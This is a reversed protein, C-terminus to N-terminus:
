ASGVRLDTHMGADWHGIIHCGIFLEGPEDLMVLLDASEAPAVTISPVDHAHTAGGSGLERMAVEADDQAAQDGVVAEHEVAGHNTFRLAIVTGAPVEPVLCDYAFDTMGVEFALEVDAATLAVEDHAAGDDHPAEADDHAADADMDMDMDEDHAAEDDHPAEADDHAADDDMSMDPDMDMEAHDEAAALQITAPDFSDCEPASEPPISQSASLEDATVPPTASGCSAAILAVVGFSLTAFPLRTRM